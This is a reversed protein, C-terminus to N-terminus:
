SASRAAFNTWAAVRSGRHWLRNRPSAAARTDLDTGIELLKRWIEDACLKTALRM